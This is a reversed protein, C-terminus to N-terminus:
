LLKNIDRWCDLIEQLIEILDVRGKITEFFEIVESSHPMSAVNYVANDDRLINEAYKVIEIVWDTNDCYISTDTNVFLDMIIDKSFQVTEMSLHSIMEVNNSDSLVSLTICNRDTFNM